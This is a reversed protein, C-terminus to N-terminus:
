PLICRLVGTGSGDHTYRLQNGDVTFTGSNNRYDFEGSVTKQRAIDPPLRDESTWADGDVLIMPNACGHTQVTVQDTQSCGSILGLFTLALIAKTLRIKDM